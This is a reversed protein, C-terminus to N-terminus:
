RWARPSAERSHAAPGLRRDLWAALPAGLLLIGLVAAFSLQWGADAAIGPNVAITVAAAVALVYLRSARRGRLTALLGLAGMVGARQISPGAGTLPVYVAILGLM